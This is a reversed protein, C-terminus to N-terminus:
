APSSAGLAKSFRPRGFRATAKYSFREANSAAAFATAGAGAIQVKGTAFSSMASTTLVSTAAVSTKFTTRLAAPSNSSSM